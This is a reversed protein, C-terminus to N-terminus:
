PIQLEVINNKNAELTIEKSLEGSEIAYSGLFGRTRFVGDEGTVGEVDTWWERFVLDRWAQLNKKPRWDLTFMAANPLWHRGAWFGWLTFGNMKPHSFAQTLYDRTYMAQVEEDTSNVDFETVQIFNVEKAFQEFIEYVRDLSTLNGGFHSQFGFGDVLGGREQIFKLTEHTFNIHTLSYGGREVNDYDNLMLKVNPDNQRAMKFWEAMEENGLVAQVDKNDFPENLVDWEVVRGQTSTVLQTIHSNIRRRLAEKDVPKADLMAQVDAPLNRKGPWVLVHAHIDLNNEKLWRQAQDFRGAAWTEFFPWKLDNEIAVKNFNRLLEERYRQSTANNATVTLSDVATAFGFAHRKMRVRVAAGVVANGDADKVTVAVDAKRYKEIREAAAARWPADAASGDYPLGVLNLSRIDFDPGYNLLQFGGIEVQQLQANVWFSLNYSSTGSTSGNYTKDWRFPVQVLKWERSAGTAWDASKSYPDAGQEVVFQALAPADSTSRMWYSAVGVDGKNAPKTAFCRLRLDWANPALATTTIRWARTFGPGEVDVTSYSVRPAGELRNFCQMADTVLMSTADQGFVCSLFMLGIVLIRACM